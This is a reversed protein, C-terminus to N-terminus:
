AGEGRGGEEWDGVVKGSSERQGRKVYGKQVRRGDYPKSFESVNIIAHANRNKEKKKSTKRRHEEPILLLGYPPFIGM